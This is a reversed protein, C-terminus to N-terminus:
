TALFYTRISRVGQKANKKVRKVSTRFVPAYISIWKQIVSPPKELHERISTCLLAQASPKMHNQMDYIEVLQRSLDRREAAAKTAADRGHVGSNRLKWLEFWNEWIEHTLATQWKKGTKKKVPLTRRQHFCYTDQVDGWSTSFRGNFLQRRGIRDQTHIIAHVSQPYNACSITVNSPDDPYLWSRIADLLLAQIPPCTFQKVCFAEINSLFKRRWRNREAGPCRLFHDRDKHQHPCCPCTRKGSDLKNQWSHTPLIDHVLKIFHLRHVMQKRLAAGHPEWNISAITSDSWKNRTQIYQQLPPGCYAHRLKPADDSTVSGNPMHLHARNRPTVTREAGYQDQYESALKDADVNLQANLSLQAYPKGKDQHSKVFKLTLEPLQLLAHQTEILVDWDPCLANVLVREGDISVPEDKEDPNVDGGALTKLVSQSDTVITGRWPEHHSTYEAVRILFRLLSLIGVGEARYSTPRYGRAPGMGTAAHEGTDTSLIWRFAGQTEYRVSGDTAAQIGTALATCLTYPDVHMTTHRLIDIEWPDLTHVYSEFTDTKTPPISSVHRCQASKVQWQNPLTSPLVDVPQAESPLLAFPIMQSTEQYRQPRTTPKCLITYVEGLRIYLRM